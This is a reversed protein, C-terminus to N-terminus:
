VGVALRAAVEGNEHRRNEVAMSLEVLFTSRQALCAGSLYAQRICDVAVIREANATHTHLSSDRLSAMVEEM